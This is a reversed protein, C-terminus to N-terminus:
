WELTSTGPAWYHGIGEEPLKLPEFTMPFQKVHWYSGCGARCCVERGIVLILCVNMLRTVTLLFIPWSPFSGFVRPQFTKLAPLCEPKDELLIHKSCYLYYILPLLWWLVILTIPNTVDKLLMIIIDELVWLVPSWLKFNSGSYCEWGMEKKRARMWGWGEVCVWERILLLIDLCLLVGAHATKLKFYQMNWKGVM